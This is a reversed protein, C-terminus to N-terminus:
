KSLFDIIDEKKRLGVMKGIAKGDKFAILTPISEIGFQRALEMEEDATLLPVKGIEKLYMRVPDELSVGEPISMDINALDEVDEDLMMDPDPEVDIEEEFSAMRLVDVGNSELFEYVKEVQAPTLETDALFDNIEQYELVNKKKKAYALLDKMKEFFKDKNEEM